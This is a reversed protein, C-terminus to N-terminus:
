KPKLAEEAALVLLNAAPYYSQYPQSSYSLQSLQEVTFKNQIALTLTDIKDTVPEEALLQAGLLRKSAKEVILKLHIKKAGPMIPFKSTVESYATVIDYGADKAIRESLGTGGVFYKGAKTAAGNYFGSYSRSQGLLNFGLVKAMPVANTALKGSVRRATIGSYFETCDGVAYVDEINTEMKDNVIIGDKGVELSTEAFLDVHAKMGTAFIVMGKFEEKNTINCDEISDFHIIQGNNLHVQQVYQKGKLEEVRAQLHVNIGQRIVEEYILESMEPDLLNPLLTTAMDVLDVTLGKQNLSLALEIGIAGAGIVVARELGQNINDMILRMNKETKFGTIGELDAGPINPIFPNAGTAIVLKDYTFIEGAETYVEKKSFDVKSVSSRILDAGADTVISDKKFTKEIDIIGEVAYPMACYIMSYDEPRIIAVRKQKGLLKALTVGAPGGGIVLVDYKEM